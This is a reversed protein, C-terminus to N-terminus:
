TTIDAVLSERSLMANGAKKCAREYVITQWAVEALMTTCAHIDNEDHKVRQLYSPDDQSCRVHVKVCGPQIRFNKPYHIWQLTTVSAVPCEEAM